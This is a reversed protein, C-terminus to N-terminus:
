PTSAGFTMLSRLYKMAVHAGRSSLHDPNAWLQLTGTNPDDYPTILKYLCFFATNQQRALVAQYDVYDSMLYAKGFTDTIHAPPLLMIGVGPVAARVRSILTTLCAGQAAPSQNGILENVAFEIFVVHPALTTIYSSWLASDAGAWQCATSGPRSVDQIVSGPLGTDMNVGALIVTGSVMQIDFSTM